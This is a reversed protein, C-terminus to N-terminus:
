DPMQLDSVCIKISEPKLNKMKDIISKTKHFKAYIEGLTAEIHSMPFRNIFKGKLTVINATKQPVDISQIFVLTGFNTLVCLDNQQKLLANLCKEIHDPLM